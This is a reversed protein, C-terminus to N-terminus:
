KTTWKRTCIKNVEVGGSFIDFSRVVAMYTVTVTLDMFHEYSIERDIFKRQISNLTGTTKYMEYRFHDLVLLRKIMMAMIKCEALFYVAFYKWIKRLQIIL